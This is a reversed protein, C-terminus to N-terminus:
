RYPPHHGVGAGLAGADVGHGYGGYGDLRHAEDYACGGELDHPVAPQVVPEGRGRLYGGEVPRPELGRGAQVLTIRSVRQFICALAYSAFPRAQAPGKGVGENQIFASSRLVGHLCLETPGPGIPSFNEPLQVTVLRLWKICLPAVAAVLDPYKSGLPTCCPRKDPPQRQTSFDSAVTFKPSDRKWASLHIFTLSLALAALVRARCRTAIFISRMADHLSSLKSRLGEYSSRPHWRSLCAWPRLPGYM